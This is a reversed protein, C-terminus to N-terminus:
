AINERREGVTRAEKSVEGEESRTTLSGEKDHELPVRHICLHIHFASIKITGMALRVNGHDEM